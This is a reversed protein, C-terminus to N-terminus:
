SVEEFYGQFKRNVEQFSGNLMMSLEKFSWQFKLVGRLKRSVSNLSKLVLFIGLVISSFFPVFVCVFVCVSLNLSLMM